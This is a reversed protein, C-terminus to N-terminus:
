ASPMFKGSLTYTLQKPLNLVVESEASDPDVPIRVIKSGKGDDSAQV